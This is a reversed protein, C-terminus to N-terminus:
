LHNMDWFIFCGDSKLHQGRCWKSWQHLRASTNGLGHKNSFGRVLSYTYSYDESAWHVVRTMDPLFVLWRITLSLWNRGCNMVCPMRHKCFIPSFSTSNGPFAPVLVAPVEPLLRSHCIRIRDWISMSELDECSKNWISMSELDECSRDRISMSELDECSRDWILGWLSFQQFSPVSLMSPILKQRRALCDRFLEHTTSTTLVNNNQASDVVFPLM